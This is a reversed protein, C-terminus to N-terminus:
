HLGSPPRTARDAGVMLLTKGVTTRAEIAAHAEAVQELEFTQGITPRLVGAAALALADEVHRFLEGPTSGIARLPVITVARGSAMTDTVPSWSGSAAGHPLYRGGPGLRDFLTHSADGGVGDFVVSVGSPTAARLAEPWGPVRYSVGCDAGLRRAYEIKDENGALAIVRAGANKALQVLLGGVGGAAATVLVTDRTSIEAARALGVATRGDALLATATHLDLERPIRHLDDVSALAHTAYGGHGGTATVVEKGIWNRPVQDGADVVRGGVGNGLVAPFRIPPGPSRGARLQTEIFTVSAVEVAVVVQGTGPRPDPLDIPQFSEPPGARSTMMVRM